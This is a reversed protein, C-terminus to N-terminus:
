RRSSSLSTRRQLRALAWVTGFLSPARTPDNEDDRWYSVCLYETGLIREKKALSASQNGIGVRCPITKHTIACADVRHFISTQRAHMDGAHAQRRREWGNSHLQQLTSAICRAADRLTAAILAGKTGPSQVLRQTATRWRSRPM